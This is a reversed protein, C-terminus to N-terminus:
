SVFLTTEKETLEASMRELQNITPDEGYVDDGTQASMMADLMAASPRTVKYSRLDIV